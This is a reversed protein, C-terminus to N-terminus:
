FDFLNLQNSVDNSENTPEIHQFAQLIPSKEFLSVSLVQLLNYLSVDLGLRKKVIAVLVYVAVAIWIQTKVANESYGYFAKIRLHQKIWKFFTEIRWRSRYLQAITLAPLAFHNTLFVLRKSSELDTYRIRRARDPYDDGSHVGSFRITQDCHLGTTPDVPTSHLRTFQTNKWSRTVFFAGAQHIRHLRKFDVYARDMVYFSGAQYAIQDMTSVDSVRGHTIRIFSPINGRLDLLTHVKIAGRQHHFPAWPCLSLCLDITTSDLAYVTQELEVGFSDGAYLARAIGMLVQAFDAYVRWDRRENADALTSRAVPGRIGMHYLRSPAARLCAEIDRLSERFTLQAFSMCLFQDWCSFRRLRYDAEYRAVCRRFEHIPAHDMLQSFVLRGEHM